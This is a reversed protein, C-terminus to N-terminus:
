RYVPQRGMQLSVEQGGMTFYRARGTTPDAVAALPDFPGGGQDTWAWGVHPTSAIGQAGVLSTFNVATPLASPDQVPALGAFVYGESTRNVMATAVPVGAVNLNVLTYPTLGDVLNEVDLSAGITYAGLDVGFRGGHVLDNAALGHAIASAETSYATDAPAPSMATLGQSPESAYASAGGIIVYGFSATPNDSPATVLDKQAVFVYKNLYYTGEQTDAQFVDSNWTSLTFYHDAKYGNSPWTWKDSHSFGSNHWPDWIYFGNITTYPQSSPNAASDFGIALIEHAGAGETVGVPNATAEINWMISYDAALQSNSNYTYDNFAWGSPTYSYMAWALGRSDHAYTDDFSCHQYPPPPTTWDYKDGYSGGSYTIYTSIDSQSVSPVYGIVYGIFTRAVAVVCWCNGAQPQQYAKQLVDYNFGFATQTPILALAITSAVVVLMRPLRFM